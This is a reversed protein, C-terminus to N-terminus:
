FAGDELLKLFLKAIQPDFHKGAQEVIYERAKEETWAKRYPRDNTLADWV